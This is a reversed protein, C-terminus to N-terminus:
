KGLKIAGWSKPTKYGDDTDKDSYFQEVVGKGDVDDIAYNFGIDAGEKPTLKLQTAPIFFELVYGGEVPKWKSEIKDPAASGQPVVVIGKGAGKAPNPAIAIQFSKETMEDKHGNDSDIFLEICDSSWPNEEDVAIKADKAQLCGYLGDDAWALKLAGEDKKAFPAPLAKIKAWDAPDGDVSIKDALKPIVVPKKVSGIGDDAAYTWASIVLSAALVLRVAKTTFM